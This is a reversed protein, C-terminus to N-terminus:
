WTNYPTGDLGVLDSGSHVDFVGGQADEEQAPVVAWSDARKTFPDTPVRRLYRKEVLVELSEPYRRHDTYHGDIAERLTALDQRLATERGRIVARQMGPTALRLLVGLIALVVALEMLTFGSRRSGTPM